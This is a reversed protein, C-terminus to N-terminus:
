VPTHSDSVHYRRQCIQIRFNTSGPPTSGGVKQIGHGAPVTRVLGLFDNEYEFRVIAGARYDALTGLTKGSLTDIRQSYRSVVEM